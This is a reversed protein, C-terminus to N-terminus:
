SRFAEIRDIFVGLKEESKYPENLHVMRKKDSDLYCDIVKWHNFLRWSNRLTDMACCEAYIALGKAVRDKSYENVVKSFDVEPVDIELLRILNCASLWYGEILPALISQLFYLRLLSEQNTNMEIKQDVFPMNEEDSGESDWSASIGIHRAWKQPDPGQQLKVVEHLVLKDIAESIAHAINGCPPVFTFEFQLMDCLEEAKKLLRSRPLVIKNEKSSDIVFMDENCLAILSSAVISEMLFVSVLSSAYYSLEFVHPLGTNPVVMERIEETKRNGDTAPVIDPHSRTRHRAVLDPGLLNFTHKVVDATVGTFGVDRGRLLVDRRLNDVAMVLQSMEVGQRFKTLLLFAVLNTSMATNVKVSDYVIHEGLGRILQRQDEIVVDTGYLSHDSVAKQLRPKRPAIAPLDSNLATPLPPSGLYEKLSFPQAFDVRVNGFGSSLVRWIGAIANFFTEKKKPMGMQENSFSGDLIKEYSISAPIIYADSIIDDRYADVVCSLLGGKPALAKGSRSRGGEIFFEMNQNDRLIEEMYTHLTSRYVWDKKGIEKDLKRKIFFAGLRRLCWGFFPINLNDGAAVFPLRIGTLHFIFSLLVYDLHSRHLPVIIVPVGSEAAQRVMNLQGEHVQVGILFLGLIKLLLWGTLRILSNSITAAMHRLVNMARRRHKDAAKQYESETDLRGESDSMASKHVALQVRQNELVRQSVDPVSPYSHNVARFLAHDVHPFYRFLLGARPPATMKLINKLGMSPLDDSYFMERSLQACQNCCRGIFPRKMESSGNVTQSSPPSMKFNALEPVLDLAPLTASRGRRKRRQPQCESNDRERPKRAPPPPPLNSPMKKEWSKYVEEIRQMDMRGVVLKQSFEKWRNQGCDM